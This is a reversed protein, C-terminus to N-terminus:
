NIVEGNGYRVCLNAFRISSPMVIQEVRSHNNLCYFVVKDLQSTKRIEVAGSDYGIAIYNFNDRHCRM